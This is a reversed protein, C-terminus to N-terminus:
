KGCCWKYKLTSGCVCPDNRGIKKGPRERRGPKLTVALRELEADFMWPEQNFCVFDIVHTSRAISGLGIWADSKTQYKKAMAYSLAHGPLRESEARCLFSLGFTKTVTLSFDHIRGDRQCQLKTAAIRQTIGDITESSLDYLLFLADTLGPVNSAKMHAVLEAFEQNKWKHHLKDAAPTHPHAGRLAQFNADLAQAYRPQIPYFPTNPTPWLKKRLHYALLGIENEAKFYGATAIRQRLYYLFEFADTLYFTMVELDFLSVTLPYPEGPPRQLFVDSQHALAPYTDATVCIIYAENIAEDLALPTGTDTVLHHSRKLIAHRCTVGQLYAEQVAKTYDNKLQEADGKRALSTLRKSKAQIVVAKNGEIALVDVDSVTTNKDKLVRVNTFVRHAGFVRLLFAAALDATTDGRHKLGTEKYAPDALMWYFPSEYLSQSLFFGIPLFYRGERAIIPKAEFPNYDGPLALATFAHEGPVSSFAKLFARVQHPQAAALEIPEFSFAEILSHCQQAFDTANPTLTNVKNESLNKLEAALRCASTIDLGHAFALWDRDRVHRREAMDLYQFDYAGTSAYFIAEAMFAGSGFIDQFAAAREHETTLGQEKHRVFTEATPQIYAEHLEAFLTECASIWQQADALNPIEWLIPQKLMLGCLFALEQFSFREYWNIDVTERPDVFLDRRVLFAFVYVFGPRTAIGEISAIITAKSRSGSKPTPQM